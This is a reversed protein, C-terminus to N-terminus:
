DKGLELTDLLFGRVAGQIAQELDIPAPKDMSLSEVRTQNTGVNLMTISGRSAEETVEVVIHIDLNAM